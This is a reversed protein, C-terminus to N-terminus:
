RAGNRAVKEGVYPIDDLRLTRTVAFPDEHKFAGFGDEFQQLRCRLVDDAEDDGGRKEFSLRRFDRLLNDAAPTSDVATRFVLQGLQGIDFGGAAHQGDNMLRGPVLRGYQRLRFNEAEVPVHQLVRRIHPRDNSSRRSEIHTGQPQCGVGDIHQSWFDHARGCGRQKLQGDKGM